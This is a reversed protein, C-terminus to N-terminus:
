YQTVLLISFGATMNKSFIRLYKRAPGSIRLPRSRM